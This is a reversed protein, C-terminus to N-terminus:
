HDIFNHHHISLSSGQPESNSVLIVRVPKINDFDILMIEIDPIALILHILWIRIIYSSYLATESRCKRQTNIVYPGTINYSIGDKIMICVFM